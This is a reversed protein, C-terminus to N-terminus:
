LVQIYNHILKNSNPSLSYIFANKKFSLLAILNKALTKCEGREYRKKQKVYHCGTGMWNIIFYLKAEYTQPPYSTKINKFTTVFIQLIINDIEAIYFLQLKIM